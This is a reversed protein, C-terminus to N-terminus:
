TSFLKCMSLLINPLTVMVAKCSRLLNLMLESWFPSQTKKFHTHDPKIRHFCITKNSKCNLCFAQRTLFLNQSKKRHCTFLKLLNFFFLFSYNQFIISIHIFKSSITLFSNMQHTEGIISTTM